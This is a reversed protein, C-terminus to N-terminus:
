FKALVIGDANNVNLNKVNGVFYQYQQLVQDKKMDSIAKEMDLSRIDSDRGIYGFAEQQNFTLSIDELQADRRVPAVGSAEEHIPVNQNAAVSEPQQIDSIVIPEKAVVPLRYDQLISNYDNISGIGM